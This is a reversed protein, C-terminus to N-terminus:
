KKMHGCKCGQIMLDMTSCTCQQDTPTETSDVSITSANENLITVPIGMLGTPAGPLNVTVKKETFDVLNKITEKGSWGKLALNRNIEQEWEKWKEKSPMKINRLNDMAGLTEWQLTTIYLGEIAQKVVESPYYMSSMTPDGMFCKEVTGQVGRGEPKPDSCRVYIWKNMCQDCQIIEDQTDTYKGLIFPGSENGCHPCISVGSLTAKSSKQLHDIKIEVEPFSQSKSEKQILKPGQVWEANCRFCHSLSLYTSHHADSNCEPCLQKGKENVLNSVKIRKNKSATTLVLNGNVIEVNSDLANVLEKELEQIRKDAVQKREELERYAKLWKEQAIDLHDHEKEYRTSLKDELEKCRKRALYEAEHADNLAKASNSGHTNFLETLRKSKYKEKNLRETEDDLRKCAGLYMGRLMPLSHYNELAERNTTHPFIQREMDALLSLTNEYLQEIEKEDMGQVSQKFLNEQAKQMVTKQEGTEANVLYLSSM